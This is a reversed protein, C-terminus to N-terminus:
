GADPFCTGIATKADDSLGEIDAESAIAMLEETVSADAADALCSCGSADTGNEAAYAECHAELESAFSPSAILSLAVAATIIKRM